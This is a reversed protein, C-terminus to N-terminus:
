SVVGDTNKDMEGFTEKCDSVCWELDTKEKQANVTVMVAAVVLAFFKM